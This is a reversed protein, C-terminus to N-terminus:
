FIIDALDKVTHLYEKAKAMGSNNELYEIGKPSIAINRIRIAPEERGMVNLLSVGEILGESVLHRMIYEWYPQQIDFLPSDVSVYAKDVEESKKLKKYLYSLIKCVIVSYDDKAM